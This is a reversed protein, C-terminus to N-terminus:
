LVARLTSFPKRSEHILLYKILVMAVKTVHTHTILVVVWM